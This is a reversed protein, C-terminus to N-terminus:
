NPRQRAQGRSSLQDLHQCAPHRRAPRAWRDRALHPRWGQRLAGGQMVRMEPFRGMELERGSAEEAYAQIGIRLDYYQGM